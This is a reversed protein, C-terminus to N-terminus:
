WRAVGIALPPSNKPRLGGDGTLELSARLAHEIENGTVTDLGFAAVAEGESPRDVRGGHRGVVASIFAGAATFASRVSEPDVHGDRLQSIRAVLVVAERLTAEAGADRTPTLVGISSGM